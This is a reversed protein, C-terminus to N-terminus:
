PVISRPQFGAPFISALINMDTHPAVHQLYYSKEGRITNVFFLVILFPLLCLMPLVRYALM